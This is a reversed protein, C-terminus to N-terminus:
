RSPNCQLVTRFFTRVPAILDFGSHAVGPVIDLSVQMGAREMGTRLAHIREIRTRGADNIGPMYHGHGPKMTIEWTEIDRDGIVLHVPVRRLAPWDVSTGMRAELGGLGVWWPLTEDPLTVVGPAGVCAARVRRPYCYLFRHAFHGGGSYGYLLFDLPRIGYRVRTQEVMSLLIHDFRIAGLSLFKYGSTDDPDGVGIPFLPALVICGTEEAFARFCDRYKEAVRLSGHVSVLLPQDSGRSEDYCKPVYLCYSFREDAQCARFPTAGREYYELPRPQEGGSM